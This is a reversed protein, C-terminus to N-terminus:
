LFNPHPLSEPLVFCFWLPPLCATPDKNLPVSNGPALEPQPFPFLTPSTHSYLRHPEPLRHSCLVPPNSLLYNIDEFKDGSDKERHHSLWLWLRFRFRVCLLLGSCPEMRIGTPGQFRGDCHQHLQLRLQREQWRPWMHGGPWWQIWLVCFCQRGWCSGLFVTNLAPNESGWPFVEGLAGEISVSLLRTAANVLCGSSVCSSFISLFLASHIKLPPSPKNM